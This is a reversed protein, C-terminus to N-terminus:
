QWHSDLVVNHGFWAGFQQSVIFCGKHVLDRGYRLGNDWVLSVRRKSRKVGWVVTSGLLGAVRTSGPVKSCERGAASHIQARLDWLLKQCDTM